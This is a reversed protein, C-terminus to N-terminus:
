LIRIAALDIDITPCDRRKGVRWPESVLTEVITVSSVAIGNRAGWFLRLSVASGM